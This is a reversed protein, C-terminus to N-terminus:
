DQKTPLDGRAPHGRFVIELGQKNCINPKYSVVKIQGTESDLRGHLVHFLGWPIRSLRICVYTPHGVTKGQRRRRRSRRWCRFWLAIAFLICNSM